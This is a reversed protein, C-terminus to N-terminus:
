QWPTSRASRPVPSSSRMRGPRTPMSRPCWRTPSRRSSSTSCGAATSRGVGRRAGDGGRRHQRVLLGQDARCRRVPWTVSCTTDSSRRRTVAPPRSSSCPYATTVGGRSRDPRQETRRLAVARLRRRGRDERTLREVRLRVEPRGPLLWTLGDRLRDRWNEWNHGDRAEVYRVGHRDGPVDLGDVPEPHDAARLMGCTQFIRDVVARPRARYANVFKVVPDFVPGVVTTTRRHRHLRVVGVGPPALRLAGPLARRDVAVRDRRLQLGDPTRGDPLDVLPLAETLYRCWSARSSARTRHTTPTSWWGTVPRSSRRRGDRRGRRPPHPQRARDEIAAYDLYDDGDHM